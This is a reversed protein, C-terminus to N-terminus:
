QQKNVQINFLFMALPDVSAKIVLGEARALFNEMTAGGSQGCVWKENKGGKGSGSREDHSNLSVRVEVTM